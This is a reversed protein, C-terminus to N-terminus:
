REPQEWSNRDRARSRDRNLINLGSFKRRLKAKSHCYLDIYDGFPLYISVLFLGVSLLLNSKTLVSAYPMCVSYEQAAPSSPRSHNISDRLDM